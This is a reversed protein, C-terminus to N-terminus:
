RGPWPVPVVTDRPVARVDDVGCLVMTAALEETLGGLVRAVGDAGGTAPGWVTPRGLFMARAGLALATSGRPCPGASAIAPDAQRGGHTSVWVAAAGDAGCRAADDGRLM